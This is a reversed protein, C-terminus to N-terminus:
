VTEFSKQALRMYLLPYPNGQEDLDTRKYVQFGMHEYFGKAQPNQENVTLREVAYSKIGYQILRKGLGKGREEPAVFLMELSGDEIGMFAVPRGAEDEAIILHAIGHLAQPVYEKISKIEVDSLFLHTAQVSGEWVELLQNVLDPTRSKIEKIKMTDEDIIVKVPTCKRDNCEGESVSCAAIGVRVNMMAQLVVKNGAKSRPPMIEIKGNEDVKTFMFLNVPQIIPRQESLAHNINDYCNPHGSGNQYFFDYMEPRCCPFLLDHEGVEDYVVKFMPRYFNTYIYDGVHLKLSENCDITVASSLFEHPNGAYEAFFDAVQGGEVDIVSITQGEAIDMSAGSCAPIFYERM